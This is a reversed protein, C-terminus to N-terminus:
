TINAKLISKKFHREGVCSNEEALHSKTVFEFNQISDSFFFFDNREM